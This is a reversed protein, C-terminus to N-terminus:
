TATRKPSSAPSCRASTREEGIAMRELTGDAGKAVFLMDLLRLIGRGRLRDVEALIRGEADADPSFSVAIVQLPATM